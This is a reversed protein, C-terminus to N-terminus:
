PVGNQNYNYVFVNITTERDDMDIKGTLQWSLNPSDRPFCITLPGIM